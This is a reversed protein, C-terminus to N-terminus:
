LTVLSDENLIIESLLNKKQFNFFFMQVQSFTGLIKMTLLIEELFRCHVMVSSVAATM